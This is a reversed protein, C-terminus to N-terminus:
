KYKELYKRQAEKLWRNDEIQGKSNELVWDILLKKGEDDMNLVVETMAQLANVGEKRKGLYKDRHYDPGCHYKAHASQLDDKHFNYIWRLSYHLIEEPTYEM